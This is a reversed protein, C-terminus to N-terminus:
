LAYVIRVTVTKVSVSKFIGTLFHNSMKPLAGFLPSLLMKKKKKKKKYIRRNM